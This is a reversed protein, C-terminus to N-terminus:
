PRGGALKARAQEFGEHDLPGRVVPIGRAQMQDLMQHYTLDLEEAARRVTIEGRELLTFIAAERACSQAAERGPESIDDPLELQVRVSKTAM